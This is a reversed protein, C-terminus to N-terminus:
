SSALISTSCSRVEKELLPLMPATAVSPHFRLDSLLFHGEDVDIHQQRPPTRHKDLHRPFSVIEKREYMKRTNSSNCCTQMCTIPATPTVLSAAHIDAACSSSVAFTVLARGAVASHLGSSYCGPCSPQSPSTAAAAADKCARPPIGPAHNRRNSFSTALALFVFHAASSNSVAM